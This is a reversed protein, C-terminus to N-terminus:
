EQKNYFPFLLFDELNRGIVWNSLMKLVEKKDLVPTICIDEEKFFDIWYDSPQTIFKDELRKILNQQEERKYLSKEDFVIDLLTLLRKFFKEEISGVAIYRNDKCKYVNYCAYNGYLLGENIKGNDECFYFFPFFSLCARFLSLDIKGGSGSIRRKELMYLCGIIAWLAGVMDAMQFPFPTHVIKSANMIGSLSVFNLDHGAKNELPTNKEFAYLSIYIISPNIQKVTEYDLGYKKLFTPKFGNLVIDANSVIDLLKNKNNNDKINLYEIHKKKNLTKYVNFDLNKLPDGGDPHEIKTVNAGFNAFFAGVYPLPLYMALEVIKTKEFM